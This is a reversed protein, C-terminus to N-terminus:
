FPQATRVYEVFYTNEFVEFNVLFCRQQLRNKILNCAELGSVEDFLSELVPKKRRM